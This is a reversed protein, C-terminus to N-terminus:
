DHTVVTFAPEKSGPPIWHRYFGGDQLFESAEPPAFFISQQHSLNASGGSSFNKDPLESSYVNPREAPWFCDGCNLFKLPGSAEPKRFRFRSWDIGESESWCQYDGDGSVIGTVVGILRARAAGHVEVSSSRFGAGDLGMCWGGFAGFISGM